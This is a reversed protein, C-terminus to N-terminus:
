CRSEAVAPTSPVWAPGPGPRAQIQKKRRLIGRRLTCAYVTSMFLRFGNFGAVLLAMGTLYCAGGVRERVIYIVLANCIIFLTLVSSRFFKFENDVKLAEATAKAAEAEKERFLDAQRKLAEEPTESVNSAAALSKRGASSGSGSGSGHGGGSELGKTGWSLDHLNCFSYLMFINVFAPLMFFYHLIYAVIHHLEFHIAASIFYAGMSLVAVGISVYWSLACTGAVVVEGASKTLSVPDAASSCAEHFAAVAAPSDAGGKAAPLFADNFTDMSCTFTQGLLGLNANTYGTTIPKPSSGTALNYLQYVSLASVAMMILGFLVASFSYFGRVLKGTSEKRYPGMRNGLGFMFQMLILFVYLGHLGESLLSGLFSLTLAFYVSLYFNAPLVWSLVLTLLNYAFEVTISLKTTCSHGSKCFFRPFSCIAYVSAFFSGNLWRRRQKLLDVVNGPVDTYAVANKVYEM